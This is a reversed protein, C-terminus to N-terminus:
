AFRERYFPICPAGAPDGVRRGALQQLLDRGGVRRRCGRGDLAGPRRLRRPPPEGELFPRLHQPPQRPRQAVVRREHVRQDGLAALRTVLGLPELQEVRELQRPIECPARPAPRQRVLQAPRHHERVLPRADDAVRAPHHRTM